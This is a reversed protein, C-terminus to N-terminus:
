NQAKNWDDMFAQIGKDTMPHAALKSLVNFPITAIHAGALASDLVHMPNRISAVIIETDFAYNNYIEVIQEVFLSLIFKSYATAMKYYARSYYNM